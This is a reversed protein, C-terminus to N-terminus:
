TDLTEIHPGHENYRLALEADTFVAYSNATVSVDSHGMLQALTALDGGNALYERAFSHRFAHPNVRGTVGAKQKLRELIQHLGSSSLSEGRRQPSLSCFVTPAYLPRVALWCRLLNLTYPTYFVLRTKSGKECVTARHAALDLQPLKLTLLGGARCGTDALFALLARDRLGLPNDDCAQMLKHLDDLSIAKPEKRQKPPKKIRRMPNDDLDYEAMCWNFFGVLGRLIGRLTDDALGGAMQPRQPADIYRARRTRLAIVYGRMLGTDVQDLPLDGFQAICPKLVGQYWRTTGPKLGDARKALLFQEVAAGLTIM